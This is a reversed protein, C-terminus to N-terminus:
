IKFREFCSITINEGLKGIHEKILEKITINNDRIYPQKLLSSINKPEMAAIQMAIEHALKQFAPTRAVFDTECHIKLLVGTKKDSHIYAEIIGEKTKRNSKKDAKKIGWKKLLKVAKQCDNNCEKLAKQCESIPADTLKRLKKINEVKTKKMKKTKKKM